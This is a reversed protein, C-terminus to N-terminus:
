AEYIQQERISVQNGTPIDVLATLNYQNRLFRSLFFIRVPQGQASCFPLALRRGPKRHSLVPKKASFIDTLLRNILLNSLSIKHDPQSSLKAASLYNNKIFIKQCCIFGFYGRQKFLHAQIRTLLTKIVFRDCQFHIGGWFM